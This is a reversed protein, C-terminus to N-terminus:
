RISGVLDLMARVTTGNTLLLVTAMYLSSLRVIFASPTRLEIKELVVSLVGISEIRRFPHAHVRRLALMLTLVHALTALGIVALLWLQPEAPLHDAFTLNSIAALDLAITAVAADRLSVVPRALASRHSREAFSAFVLLYLVLVPLGLAVFLTPLDPHGPAMTLTAKSHNGYNSGERPAAFEDHRKGRRTGM